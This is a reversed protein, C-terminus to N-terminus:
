GDTAVRDDYFVQCFLHEGTSYLIDVIAFPDVANDQTWTLGDDESRMLGGYETGIYFVGKHVASSLIRSTYDGEHVKQWSNGDTSRYWTATDQTINFCQVILSTGSSVLRHMQGVSDPIPPPLPNTWHINDVSMQLGQSTLSVVGSDFLVADYVESGYRIFNNNSYDFFAEGYLYNSGNFKFTGTARIWSQDLRKHHVWTNGGDGTKFIGTPGWAVLTDGDSFGVDSVLAPIGKNHESWTVGENSSRFIGNGIQQYINEGITSFAYATENSPLSQGGNIPYWNDGNDKSFLSLHDGFLMSAFLTKTTKGLTYFLFGRASDLGNNKPINWLDFTNKTYFFGMTGAAYLTSGDGLLTYIEPDDTLRNPMKQWVVGANSTRYIGKNRTAVIIYPGASALSRISSFLSTSTAKTFSAGDNTSRYFGGITSDEDYVSVCLTPAKYIIDTIRIGGFVKMQEWTTGEDNTRFLTDDVSVIISTPTALYQYIVKGSLGAPQWSAASDTSVYLGDFTCAFLKNNFEFIGYGAGGEPGNTRTWQASSTTAFAILILFTTLLKM